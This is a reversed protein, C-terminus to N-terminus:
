LSGGTRLCRVEIGDHDPPLFTEGCARCILRKFDQRSEDINVSSCSPCSVFRSVGDRRVVTRFQVESKVSM